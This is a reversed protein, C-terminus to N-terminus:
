QIVLAACEYIIFDYESTELRTLNYLYTLLHNIENLAIDVFYTSDSAPTIDSTNILPM